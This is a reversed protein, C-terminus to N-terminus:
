ANPFERVQLDKPWESMEKGKASKLHVRISAGQYHKCPDEFWNETRTDMPFSESTDGEFGNDNRAMPYSGLQKVLVKTFRADRADSVLQRTWDISCPRSQNGSEGGIIMWDIINHEHHLGSKLFRTYLYNYVEIRELLPEFIVYRVSSDIDLLYRVNQDLFKQNGASMGFWYHAPPKQYRAKIYHNMKAPYTTQIQLTLNTLEDWEDFCQNRLEDSISPQFLDFTDCCFVMLPNGPNRESRRKDKNLTRLRQMPKDNYVWEIKDRNSRDFALKNGFRLNLVEAWCNKCTGEADPKECFTGVDSKPNGGILIAKLPNSVEDTYEISTKGMIIEKTSSNCM